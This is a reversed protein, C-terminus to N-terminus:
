ANCAAEMEEHQIKMKNIEDTATACQWDTRTSFWPCPLPLEDYLLTMSPMWLINM